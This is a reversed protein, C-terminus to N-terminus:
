NMEWSLVRYPSSDDAAPVVAAQLVRGDPQDKRRIMIRVVYVQRAQPSGLEGKTLPTESALDDPETAGTEEGSTSAKPRTNRDLSAAPNESEADIQARAKSSGFVTLYPLVARYTEPSVGLVDQLQTPHVFSTDGAGFGEGAAAYQADEAGWRSKKHDADRWDLIRDRLTEAELNSSTFKTLLALLTENNANNLSVLSNTGRVSASLEFGSLRILQEENSYGSRSENGPALLRSVVVELASELALRAKTRGLESSIVSVNSRVVANFASVLLTLSAMTWLVVVLAMGRQAQENGSRKM